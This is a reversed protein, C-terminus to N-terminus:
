KINKLPYAKLILEKDISKEHYWGCLNCWSTKKIIAKEAGAALAATVHMETIERACNIFFEKWKPDIPEASWVKKQEHYKDEFFKQITPIKIKNEM